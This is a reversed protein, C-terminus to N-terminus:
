PGCGSPGKGRPCRTFRVVVFGACLITRTPFVLAHACLFVIRGSSSVQDNSKPWNSELRNQTNPWNGHDMKAWVENCGMKTHLVQTLISQSWVINRSGVHPAFARPLNSSFFSLCSFSFFLSFCFFFLTNHAHVSGENSRGERSRGSNRAKSERRKKNGEGPTWEHFRPPTELRPGGFFRTKPKEPTM